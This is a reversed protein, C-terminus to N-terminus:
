SMQEEFAKAVTFVELMGNAELTVLELAHRWDEARFMGPTLVEAHNHPRGFLIGVRGEEVFEAVNSAKDDIIIDADTNDVKRIDPDDSNVITVAQVPPRWKGMWKWVSFEAWEPKATVIEVYHGADRLQALSGIAGPMAPFNPWLWDRERMWKWWSKGLIHDLQEGLDWRDFDPIEVGYETQVARKIGGMFDLVVDDLDVAIHQPEFSM